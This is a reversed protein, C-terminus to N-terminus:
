RSGRYTSLIWSLDRFSSSLPSTGSSSDRWNWTLRNGLVRACESWFLLVFFCRFGFFRTSRPYCPPPFTHVVFFFFACGWFRPFFQFGDLQSPFLTCFHPIWFILVYANSWLALYHSFYIFLTANWSFPPWTQKIRFYFIVFVKKKFVSICTCLIGFDLIFWTIDIKLSSSRTVSFHTHNFFNHVSAIVVDIRIKLFNILIFPWTFTFAVKVTVKVRELDVANMMTGQFFEVTTYHRKLLGELELDPEKRWRM